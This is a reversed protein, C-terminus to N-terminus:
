IPNFCVVSTTSCVFMGKHWVIFFKIEQFEFKTKLKFNLISILSTKRRKCLTTSCTFTFENGILFSFKLEIFFKMENNNNRSRLFFFFFFFMIGYDTISYTSHMLLKPDWSLIQLFCETTHIVLHRALMLFIFYQM